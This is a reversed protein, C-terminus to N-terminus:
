PSYAQTLARIGPTASSYTSYIIFIITLSDASRRLSTTEAGGRIFDSIVTALVGIAMERIDSASVGRKM